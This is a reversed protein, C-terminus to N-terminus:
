SLKHLIKRLMFAQENSKLLPQERRQLKIVLADGAPVATIQLPALEPTGDKGPKGGESKNRGFLRAFFGRKKAKKGREVYEAFYVGGSRDLDRVVFSAKKLALGLSAWGRDFPLALHLYPDGSQDYQLKVKSASGLGQALLSHSSQEPSSALHEALLAIMNERRAPIGANKQPWAGATVSEALAQHEVWIETTDRQVGAKFLFRYREHALKKTAGVPPKKRSSAGGQQKSAAARLFSDISASDTDALLVDTEILGSQADTRLLPIQNSQLFKVVLPWSQSPSRHMLIWQDSQFRQIRVSGKGEVEDLPEVRPVEYRKPLVKAFALEPIPYADEISTAQEGAPLNLEVLERSVLYDNSQDPFFGSEGFLMECGSSVCLLLVFCGRRAIQAVPTIAFKQAAGRRTQRGPLPKYDNMYDNMYNSM